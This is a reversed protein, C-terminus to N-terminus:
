YDVRPMAAIQRSIAILNGDTDWIEGDEEVLGGVLFRSVFSTVLKDGTPIRRFHVTLEITPVWGVQGVLNFVAPATADSAIITSLADMPRRDPFAFWARMSGRGNPVNKAFTEDDPHIRLALRKMLNPGGERFDVSMSDMPPITPPGGNVVSSGREELNGFAGIAAIAAREKGASDTVFIKAMMSNTLRGRKVTEVEIRAVGPTVPALYHLTLTYPDPRGGHQQMVRAVLAGVYGGNAAGYIDWGAEINAEFTAATDDGAVKSVQTARDFEFM